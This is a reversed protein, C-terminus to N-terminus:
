RREIKEVVTRFSSIDMEPKEASLIGSIFSCSLVAGATGTGAADVASALGALLAFFDFSILTRMMCALMWQSLKTTFVTGMRPDDQLFLEPTDRGNVFGVEMGDCDAPDGVLRYKTTSTNWPAVIYGMRRAFFSYGSTPVDGSSGASNYDDGCLMAATLALAPPVVLWM